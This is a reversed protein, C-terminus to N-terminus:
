DRRAGRRPEPGPFNFGTEIVALEKELLRANDAADRGLSAGISRSRRKVLLPWLLMEETEFHWRLKDALLETLTKLRPLTSHDEHALVHAIERRLERLGGHQADVLERAWVEEAPSGNRCDGALRDELADHRELAGLLTALTRRILPRALEPELEGMAHLRDLLREFLRHERALAALSTM